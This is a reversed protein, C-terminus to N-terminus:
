PRLAHGRAASRDPSGPVCRVGACAAHPRPADTLTGTGIWDWTASVRTAKVALELARPIAQHAIVEPNYDGILALRPAPM